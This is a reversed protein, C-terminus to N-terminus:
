ADPQVNMGHHLVTHGRITNIYSGIHFTEQLCYGHINQEIMLEILKELKNEPKKGLGNVNKNLIVCSHPCTDSLRPPVLNINGVGHPKDNPLCPALNRDKQFKNGSWHGM